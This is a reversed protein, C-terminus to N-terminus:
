DVNDVGDTPLKVLGDQTVSIPEPFAVHKPPNPGHPLRLTLHLEGNIREVPGIIHESSIADAPLMAGEQLQSFDLPQSNLTIVDGVVLAVLTADLRQPSLKIQMSNGKYNM